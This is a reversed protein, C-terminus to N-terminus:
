PHRSMYDVQLFLHYCFLLGYFTFLSWLAAKVFRFNKHVLLFALCLTVLISKAHIFYENGMDLLFDAIPNAERGSKVRVYDLTFYADLLNLILIFAVLLVEDRRYRDVYANLHEGRRRGHKRFGRRTLISWLSTPRARRDESTRRDVYPWGHFPSEALPRDAHLDHRPAPLPKPLDRHQAQMTEGFIRCFELCRGNRVVHDRRNFTEKPDLARSRDSRIRTM